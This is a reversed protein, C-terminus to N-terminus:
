VAGSAAEKSVRMVESLTTVGQQMKALGDLFMPRFGEKLATAELEELAAGRSVDRCLLNSMELIEYIGIRGSFGTQACKQCGKGQFVEFDGGPPEYGLHESIQGIPEKCEECIRRVLRQALVGRLSSSILFREVGIDVMRMVASLADNTHLTSFVLHGTLSSQVAIEATEQDRIEGVMIVDPDQRVIARLGKAFSLGIEPRIQIQNIGQLQYEVPDEVTIIKNNGSNIMNLACYLTTTKGSGTPGTVLLIGNPQKILRQFPEEVETPMGLRGLDLIISEKELIRIVVGEGHITPLTSVRLDVEKGSIRLSIKGDQPMRREAIDLGALLKIRSIIASQMSRPPKEHEYLVGDIRFRILQGHEFPEVHIDSARQEVATDVLGNVYKIVPAESAMDKLKDVDDEELLQSDEETAMIGLDYHDDCLKIIESETALQIEFPNVNLIENYLDRAEEAFFEDEKMQMEFTSNLMIEATNLIESNDPDHTVLINHEERHVLAFPHQRHFIKPLNISLYKDYKQERFLRLGMQLALVEMVDEEGVFGLSILIEGLPQPVSDLHALARDLQENSIKGYTVLMKGLKDKKDLFLSM